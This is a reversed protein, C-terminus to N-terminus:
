YGWIRLNLIRSGGIPLNPMEIQYLIIFHL